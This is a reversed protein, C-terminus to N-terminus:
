TSKWGGQDEKNRELSGEKAYQRQLKARGGDETVVGQCGAWDRHEKM